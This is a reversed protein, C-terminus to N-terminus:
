IVNADASVSENGIRVFAIRNGDAVYYYPTEQGALVKLIIFTKEDEKYIELITQPIPDMKQKIQESITESDREANDLGILDGENSIGFM